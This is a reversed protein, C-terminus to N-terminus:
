PTELLLALVGAHTSVALKEFIADLHKEVTRPSIDLSAAIGVTTLGHALGSLVRGQRPTLGARAITTAIRAALETSAVPIELVVLWGHSGGSAGFAVVRAGPEGGGAIARRLKDRAANGQTALMARGASNLEDVGGRRSLVFAPAHIQELLMPIALQARRGSDLQRELLLRARVAPVLASLVRRHLQTFQREHYAGIWAVLHPGECVLVRLQDLKDLELERFLGREAAPAGM